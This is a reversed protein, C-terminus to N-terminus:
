VLSIAVLYQMVDLISSCLMRCSKWDTKELCHQDALIFVIKNGLMLLWHLNELLFIKEM